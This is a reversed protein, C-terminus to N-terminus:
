AGKSVRRFDSYIAQVIQSPLRLESGAGSPPKNLDFGIPWKKNHRLAHKQADSCWNWVFNVARARSRLWRARNGDAVRRRYTCIM